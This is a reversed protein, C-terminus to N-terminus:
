RGTATLAREAYYHAGGATWEVQLMWKGSSLATLPLTQAGSADPTMATVRDATANAPRYLRLTGTAGARAAELWRVTVTQQDAAETIAFDAGLARVNAEATRRQDLSISREYYDDEVLDVRQGMAYAVFGVTSAAFLTYILAVSHGWHWRTSM